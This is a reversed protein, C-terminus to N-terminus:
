AALALASGLSAFEASSPLSVTKARSKALTFAGGWEKAIMRRARKLSAGNRGDDILGDLGLATLNWRDSATRGELRGNISVLEIAIAQM